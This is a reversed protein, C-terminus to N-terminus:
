SDRLDFKFYIDNDGATLSRVVTASTKRGFIRIAQKFYGLLLKEYSVNKFPLGTVIVHVANNEVWAKAAGDDYYTTWLKPLVVEAFQKIDKTLLYSSYPGGPSLAFKAGVMGFMLYSNKDNNFFEQTMESFFVTIKDMPVATVSMIVNNKFYEEKAGLKAMFTNWRQDGFAEIVTAKTTTFVTGKVNM